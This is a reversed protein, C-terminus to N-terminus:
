EAKKKFLGMNMPVHDKETRSESRVIPKKWQVRWPKEKISEQRTEGSDTDVLSLYGGFLREELSLMLGPIAPHELLGIEYVASPVEVRRGLPPVGEQLPLCRLTTKMEPSAPTLATTKGIPPSAAARNEAIKKGPQPAAPAAKATKLVVPSAPEGTLVPVVPEDEAWPKSIVVPKSDTTNMLGFGSDGAPQTPSLKEAAPSRGAIEKKEPQATSRQATSGAQRREEGQQEDSGAGFLKDITPLAQRKHRDYIATAMGAVSEFTADAGETVKRVERLMLIQENLRRQCEDQRDALMESYYTRVTSVQLNINCDALLKTIQEWTCGDNRLVYMYSMLSAFMKRNSRDKPVIFLIAAKFVEEATTADVADIRKLPGRMGNKETNAMAMNM